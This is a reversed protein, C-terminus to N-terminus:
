LRGRRHTRAMDADGWMPRCPEADLSHRQLRRGDRREEGLLDARFGLACVGDPQHDSTEPALLILDALSEVMMSAVEGLDTDGRELRQQVLQNIDCHLCDSMEPGKVKLRTLKAAAPRNQTSGLGQFGEWFQARPPSCGGRRCHKCALGLGAWDFSSPAALFRAQRVPGCREFRAHPNFYFLYRVFNGHMSRSGPMARRRQHAYPQPLWPRQRARSSHM